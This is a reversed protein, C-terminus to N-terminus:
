APGDGKFYGLVQKQFWEVLKGKRSSISEDIYRKLLYGERPPLKFQLARIWKLEERLISRAFFAMGVELFLNEPEMNEIPLDLLLVQAQRLEQQSPKASTKAQNQLAKADSLPLRTLLAKFAGKHVGRFAISLQALGIKKFFALIEETKLFYLDSVALEETKQPLVPTVFLSEFQSRIVSELERSVNQFQGLKPLKNRLGGPLHEILYRVKDSPLNKLIIGVTRPTEDKLAELFWGPHVEGMPQIKRSQILKKLEQAIKKKREKKPYALIEQAAEVLPTEYKKPVFRFLEFANGEEALASLYVLVRFPEELNQLSKFM